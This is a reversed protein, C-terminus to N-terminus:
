QEADGDLVRLAWAPPHYALWCDLCPLSDGWVGDCWSRGAACANENENENEDDTM